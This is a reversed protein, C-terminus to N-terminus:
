YTIRFDRWEGTAEEWRPEVHRVYGPLADDLSKLLADLDERLGEACLEVRRDPLNRVWGALRFAQALEAVTMRM